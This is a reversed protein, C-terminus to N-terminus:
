YYRVECGPNSSKFNDVSRQSLRTNFCSLKKLNMLDEIPRLSRLNTSAVDLEELNSLSELGKLVRLNTGSINLVKLNQLGSLSTLDEIGTNSINLQTLKFLKSVPSFNIVPVQSITLKELLGLEAVPSISVLPADFISLSRLNVFMTLPSIDGIALSQFSLASASTMRHLEEVSPEEGMEFQKRFIGKWAPDLTGWWNNLEDSRFIITLNPKQLLIEPVEEPFISSSDVNIYALNELALVDMISEVPSGELDIRILQDNESIPALSSVNTNKGIIETLTRVESLPILDVIPNDSFDVKELKVFRTIPNLVEIDSERLDLSTLGITQTLIETSPEEDSLSSFEKKLAAKWNPSLKAWWSNLDKVHHILLVSPNSRIFNDAAIVSLGTEDILVKRLSKKGSLASINTIQTKTLDIVELNDFGKFPTLDTINTESLNLFKLSSLGQLASFNILYNQSLDLEVLNTLKQINEGNNFGSNHLILRKLSDFENLVAFSMIPTESADLSHISKLNTLLGIDTIKTSSIDLSKLKDAYKIFQIDSTPTNSVNLHELFTINSIPGLATIKTNSLDVYRLQRLAEIPSLDVLNSTGSLDLSDVSVFRYLQNINVSDFESLNFRTKFYSKWPRSIGKWWELLEEDRSLKTTYISAIKLEGTKDQLNVEVFRPKTNSVKENKTGVATITQDLSAIFYVAGNDMQYAKVERIKFKFNIDKYFFEIDKLYSTIDKNTVVKRDLLLDDEVQVLGDRFIKLYSERIVVDKDRASTEKSGITNLLYELFRVQDEVKAAYEDIEVKTYGKITQGFGSYSLLLLLFTFSIRSIRIM